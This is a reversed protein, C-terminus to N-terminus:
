WKWFGSELITMTIQVWTFGAPRSWSSISFTSRLDSRNYISVFLNDVGKRMAYSSHDSDHLCLMSAAATHMEQCDGHFSATRIRFPAKTM